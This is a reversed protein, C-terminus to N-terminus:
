MKYTWEVILFIQQLRGASDTHIPRKLGQVMQILETNMETSLAMAVNRIIKERNDM